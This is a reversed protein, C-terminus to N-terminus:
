LGLICAACGEAHEVQECKCLEQRPLTWLTVHSGSVTGIFIVMGPKQVTGCVFDAKLPLRIESLTVSGKSAVFESPSIPGAKNKRQPGENKLKNLEDILLTRKEAIYFYAIDCINFNCSDRFSVSELFHVSTAFTGLILPLILVERYLCTTPLQASGQSSM